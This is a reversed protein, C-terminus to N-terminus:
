RYLGGKALHAITEAIRDQERAAAVFASGGVVTADTMGFSVCTSWVGVEGEGEEYAHIAISRLNVRVEYEVSTAERNTISRVAGIDDANEKAFTLWDGARLATEAKM